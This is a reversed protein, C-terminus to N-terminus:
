LGYSKSSTTRTRTAWGTLTVHRIWILPLVCEYTNMNCIRCVAVCQLVGCCAAVCKDMDGLRYAHCMHSMVYECTHRSSNLRTMVWFSENMHTGDDMWRHCSANMHTVHRLWINSIICAWTHCSANMQTVHRMWDQYSANEHTVHRMWRHSMVDSMHCTNIIFWWRIHRSANCTSCRTLGTVHTLSYSTVCQMYQLADSMHCTVHCTITQSMDCTQRM